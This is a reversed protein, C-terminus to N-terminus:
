KNNKPVKSVRRETSGGYAAIRMDKVQEIKVMSPDGGFRKAHFVSMLGSSMLKLVVDIASDLCPAISQAARRKGFLSRFLM